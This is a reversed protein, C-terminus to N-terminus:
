KVTEIEVRAAQANHDARKGSPETNAWESRCYRSEITPVLHNM